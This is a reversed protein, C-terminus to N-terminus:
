KTEGDKNDVYVKNEVFSDECQQMLDRAEDIIEKAKITEKSAVVAAGLLMGVGAVAAIHPAKTVLGVKAKAATNAITTGIGM